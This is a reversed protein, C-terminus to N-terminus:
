QFQAIITTNNSEAISIKCARLQGHGSVIIKNEEKQKRKKRRFEERWLLL